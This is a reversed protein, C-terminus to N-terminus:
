VESSDDSTEPGRVVMPETSSSARPAAGPMKDEQKSRSVMVAVVVALLVTLLVGVMVGIIMVLQEDEETDRQNVEQPLVGERTEGSRERAPQRPQKSRSRDLAIHLMNTGRSQDAGINDAVAPM